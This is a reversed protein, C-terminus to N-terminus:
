IILYGDDGNSLKGSSNCIFAYARQAETAALYNPQGAPGIFGYNRDFITTEATLLITGKGDDARKTILVRKPDPAGDFDVIDDTTLTYLDSERAAKDKPTLAFQIEKPPDRYSAVWRTALSRMAQQNHEGFWRSFLVKAREDNYENESAADVDYLIEARLYSTAQERDATATVLDYYIAVYTVRQDDLPTIKVSDDVIHAEDTLTNSFSETPSRPGVVKYKIKQAMPDWWMVGNTQQCIEALLKSVDEPEVLCTSVHYRPGLWNTEEIAFGALDISADLIGCLNLLDEMVSTVPQDVWAYCLQIGDGVSGPVATTGFQSRYTGDPWSLVDGVKSTYQIVQDKHRFYGSSPYQSGDGASLTIQTDNTGFAAALKGSTPAPVKVRDTLKIPDKLTITVQGKDPGRITEIIYLESVFASEDWADEFYARRLRAYRGAYYINRALLRSWFTGRAASARNAVYQDAQIDSDPEDLLTITAMARRALGDKRSIATPVTRVMSIYPRYLEGAPAPRGVSCFKYTRTGKTFNPKDQCTAFTNYCETGAAGAATCPAVGYTNLCTDLDLELVWVPELAFNTM